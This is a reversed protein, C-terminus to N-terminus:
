TWNRYITLGPVRDIGIFGRELCFMLLRQRHAEGHYRRPKQDRRIVVTMGDSQFTVSVTKQPLKRPLPKM